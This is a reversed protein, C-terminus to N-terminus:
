ALTFCQLGFLCPKFHLIKYLNKAAVFELFCLTCTCCGVLLRSRRHMLFRDSRASEGVSILNLFYNWTQTHEIRALKFPHLFSERVWPFPLRFNLNSEFLFILFSMLRQFRFERQLSCQYTTTRPFCWCILPPLCRSYALYQLQKHLMQHYCM